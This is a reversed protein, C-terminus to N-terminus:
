PLNGTVAQRRGKKRLFAGKGIFLFPPFSVVSLDRIRPFLSLVRTQTQETDSRNSLPHGMIEPNTRLSVRDRELLSTVPTPRLLNSSSVM